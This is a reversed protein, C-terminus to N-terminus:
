GLTRILILVRTKKDVAQQQPPPLLFYYFTTYYKQLLNKNLNTAFIKLLKLKKLKLKNM